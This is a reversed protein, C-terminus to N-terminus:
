KISGDNQFEFKLFVDSLGGCMGFKTLIPIHPYACHVAMNDSCKTLEIGM